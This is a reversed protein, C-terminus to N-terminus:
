HQLLSTGSREVQVAKEAESGRSGCVCGELEVKDAKIANFEEAMSDLQDLLM